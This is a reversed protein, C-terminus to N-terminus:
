QKISNMEGETGLSNYLTSYVERFKMAIEEEGNAGAVTAPLDAVSKGGKIRKMEKLLDTTGSEAAEFLKKTRVLDANKKVRRIAYHYLNRSKTMITHLGGVAPRGASRWIEHWFKADSQFPGVEEKWGPISGPTFKSGTKAIGGVSKPIILM